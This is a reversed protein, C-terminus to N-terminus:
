IIYLSNYYKDELYERIKEIYIISNLNSICDFRIIVNIKPCKNSRSVKIYSLTVKLGIM